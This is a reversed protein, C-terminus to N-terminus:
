RIGNLMDEIQKLEDSTVVGDSAIEAFIPDEPHLEAMRQVLKLLKEEKSLDIAKAIEQQQNIWDRAEPTSLERVGLKNPIISNTDPDYFCNHLQSKWEEPLHDVPLEHFSLGAHMQWQTFMYEQACNVSNDADNILFYM